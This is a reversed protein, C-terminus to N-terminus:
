VTHVFVYGLPQKWNEAIGRVMIVFVNKAVSNQRTIGDDQFGVIQGSKKDYFLNAKLSMEDLCIVCHKSFNTLQESKQKLISLCIENIGPNSPWTETIKTLTRTSPLLFPEKIHNYMAPSLYNTVSAFQKVEDCYRRGQSPLSSNLTYNKVLNYLDASLLTQATQLFQEPASKMSQLIEIEEKQKEIERGQEDIKNELVNIHARLKHKRPTRSSLRASTQTSSPKRRILTSPSASTSQAPQPHIEHLDLDMIEEPESAHVAGSANVTEVFHWFLEVDEDCVGKELPVATKLLKKGCVGLM